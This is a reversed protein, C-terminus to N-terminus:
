KFENVAGNRFAKGSVTRNIGPVKGVLRRLDRNIIATVSEQKLKALEPFFGEMLLLTM